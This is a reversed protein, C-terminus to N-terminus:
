STIRQPCRIGSRAPSAGSQAQEHEGTV